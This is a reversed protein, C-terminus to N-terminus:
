KMIYEAAMQAHLEATDFLKLPSDSSEILLGLETCGLIIGEAGQAQLEKIVQRFMAKTELSVTGICAEEFIAKHIRDWRAKPPVIVEVDRAILKEKLFDGEMTYRTGLLGVRKLGETKISEVTADAIHLVPVNVADQVQDYVKHVTNSAMILFDAGMQELEKAAECLIEAVMDWRGCSQYSDILALDLSRILMDASVNGGQYRGIMENIVKYYTITSEWSMGGLIGIKKM